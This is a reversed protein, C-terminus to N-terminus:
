LSLLSIPYLQFFALKPYVKYLYLISNSIISSALMFHTDYYVSNSDTNYHYLSTNPLFIYYIYPTFMNCVIKSM